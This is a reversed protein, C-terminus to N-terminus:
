GVFHVFKFILKKKFALLAKLKKASSFIHHETQTHQRMSDHIYPYTVVTTNWVFSLVRVDCLKMVHTFKSM